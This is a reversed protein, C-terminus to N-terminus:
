EFNVRNERGGILHQVPTFKFRKRCSFAVSSRPDVAIAIVIAIMADDM